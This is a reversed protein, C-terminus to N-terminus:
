KEIPCNAKEHHRNENRDDGSTQRQRIRHAEDDGTDAESQRMERGSRRKRMIENEVDNKRRQQEFGGEANM